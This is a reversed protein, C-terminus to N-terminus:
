IILAMDQSDQVIYWDNKQSKKRIQVQIVM